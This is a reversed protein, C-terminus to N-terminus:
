LDGAKYRPSDSIKLVSKCGCHSCSTMKSYENITLGKQIPYSESHGCNSCKLEEQYNEM